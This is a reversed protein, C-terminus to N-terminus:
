AATALQKICKLTYNIEELTNFYGLSLRVAGEPFTGITRHAYPACHLGARVAIDFSQDLAASLDQPEWGAINFSVVGVQKGEDQPGYLKMGKIEALGELLRKTLRAEHERVEAIGKELLFAVGAGLSAIGVSNLTGSEYRDPLSEPQIESESRSGTGGERLPTLNVGEGIYLGGTGPPGLLGKHRPFALLDIHAKEVDIPLGGASQAADVMFVLGHRRAIHGIEEIPQITGTVNSAHLVVILHTRPTIAREVDDPDLWGEPSCHVKTNTVGKTELAKLPRTVSNHEISSTVIDDGDRLLGKLGLNLAETANLTFVIRSPDAIHFLKALRRRAEHVVEGAAVAMKHGGRGPNAGHQRLFEDAARYVSEPKPYSTAANDLYIM